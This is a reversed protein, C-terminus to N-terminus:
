GKGERSVQLVIIRVINNYVIKELFDLKIYFSFTTVAVKGIVM